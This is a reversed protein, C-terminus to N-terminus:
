SINKQVHMEEEIWQFSYQGTRPNKRTNRKFFDQMRQVPSECDCKEGLDHNAGYQCTWYMAMQIM